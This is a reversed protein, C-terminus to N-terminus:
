KRYDEEIKMWTFGPSFSCWLCKEHAYLLSCDESLGMKPGHCLQCPNSQADPKFNQKSPALQGMEAIDWGWRERQM